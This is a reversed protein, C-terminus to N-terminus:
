EYQRGDVLVNGHDRSSSAQISLLGDQVSHLVEQVSGV